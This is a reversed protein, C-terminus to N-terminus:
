VTSVTRFALQLSDMEASTFVKDTIPNKHLIQEYQDFNESLGLAPGLYLDGGSEFGVRLDLEEDNTASRTAIKIAKVVGPLSGVDNLNVYATKDPDTAVMFTGDNWATSNIDSYQGTFENVTGSATPAMTLLNMQRTDTDSVIVQSIVNNSVTSGAHIAVTDFGTVGDILLNGPYYHSSNHNRNHYIRIEGAQAYNFYIDFTGSGLATSYDGVSVKTSGNYYHIYVRGYTISGFFYGKGSASDILGVQCITSSALSHYGYYHLWGRSIAPSFPKSFAMCNFLGCRSYETIFYITSTSRSPRTGGPFDMDEGGCWYIM